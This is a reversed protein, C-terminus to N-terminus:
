YSVNRFEKVTGDEYAFFSLSSVVMWCFVTIGRAGSNYVREGRM